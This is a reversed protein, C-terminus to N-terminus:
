VFRLSSVASLLEGMAVHTKTATSVRKSLRQTAFTVEKPEVVGTKMRQPLCDSFCYFPRMSEERAKEFSPIYAFLARFYQTEPSQVDDPIKFVLASLVVAV